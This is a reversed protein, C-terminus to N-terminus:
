VGSSASFTVPMAASAIRSVRGFSYASEQDIAATTRSLGALRSTVFHDIAGRIERTAGRFTLGLEGEHRHRCEARSTVIGTHPLALQLNLTEGENCPADSRFLCGGESLSVINGVWRHDNRICRASLQTAVRATRRPITELSEQLIPYLDALRGPRRARGVIRNDAIDRPRPGVILIIPTTPDKAITPLKAYHAEDVLRISPSWHADSLRGQTIASVVEYGLGELAASHTIRSSDRAWM